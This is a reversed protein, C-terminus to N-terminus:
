SADRNAPLNLDARLEAIVEDAPQGEGRRAEELATRIAAVSDALEEPSPHQVRWIDLCEEPSMGVPDQELQCGIFQYFQQLENAMISAM